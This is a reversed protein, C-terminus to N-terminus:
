IYLALQTVNIRSVHSLMSAAKEYFIQDDTTDRALALTLKTHQEETMQDKSVDPFCIQQEKPDQQENVTDKSCCPGM